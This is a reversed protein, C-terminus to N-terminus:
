VATVPEAVVLEEVAVPTYAEKVLLLVFGGPKREQMEALKTDANLRDKYDFMAVRKLGNDCVAWRAVTRAPAKAAKNRVRPKPPAKVKAVKVTDSKRTRPKKSKAETSAPAVEVVAIAPEDQVARDDQARSARRRPVRTTM